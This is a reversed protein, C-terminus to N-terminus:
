LQINKRFSEIHKSIEDMKNEIAMDKDLESSPLTRNSRGSAM